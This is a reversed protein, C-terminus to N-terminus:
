SNGSTISCCTGYLTMGNVVLIRSRHKLERLQVLVALEVVNRLFDDDSYDFDLYFLRRILTSLGAAKGVLNRKLFYAANIPSSATIRLREVAEEQLKLFSQDPVGLDELIKIVQRNLYMPLPKFGAGCIEIDTAKSGGFKIMSPRLCLADVRLRDDLAIM